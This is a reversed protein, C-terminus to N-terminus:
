GVAAILRAVDRALGEGREADIVADHLIQSYVLSLLARALSPALDEAATRSLGRSGALWNVAYERLMALARGYVENATGRVQPNTAAEGWCQAILGAPVEGAAVREAILGIVQDPDPPADAAALDRVGDLVTDIASRAVHAIIEDKGAFHTYIAGASLGSAEIINAMSTSHIGRRSFEAVAARAIQGRRGAMHAESMRAVRGGEEYGHRGYELRM